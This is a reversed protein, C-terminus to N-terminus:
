KCFVTFTTTKSVTVPFNGIPPLSLGANIVQGDTIGCSTVNIANWSLDASGGSAPLTTTSATLTKITPAKTEVTLKGGDNVWAGCGTYGNIKWCPQIQLSAPGLPLGVSDPVLPYSGAPYNSYLINGIMANYYTTYNNGGGVSINTTKNQIVPNPSASISATTPAPPLCGNTPSGDEIKTWLSALPSHAWIQWPNADDGGTCYNTWTPCSTGAWQFTIGSTGPYNCTISVPNCILTEGTWAGNNCTYTASGSYNPAIATNNGVSVTQGSAIGSYSAYATCGAGWNLTQSISCTAPAVVPPSCDTVPAWTWPCKSTATVSYVTGVTYGAPIGYDGHYTACSWGSSNTYTQASCDPYTCSGDSTDASSNYNTAAPDTCGYVASWVQTYSTCTTGTKVWYQCGTFCTYSSAYYDPPYYVGCLTGSGWGGSDTCVQETAYYGTDAYTACVSVWAAEVTNTFSILLTSVLFLKFLIAKIKILDKKM